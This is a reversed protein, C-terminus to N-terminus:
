YFFIGGTKKIQGMKSVPCFLTFIKTPNKSYPFGHFISKSILQGKCGTDWSPQQYIVNSIRIMSNRCHLSINTSNRQCFHKLINGLNWCHFTSWDIFFVLSFLVYWLCAIQTNKRSNNQIIISDQATLELTKVSIVFLIFYLQDKAGAYKLPVTKVHACKWCIAWINLECM